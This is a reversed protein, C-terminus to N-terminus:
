KTLLPSPDGTLACYVRKCEQTKFLEEWMDDNMFEAFITAGGEELDNLATPELSQFAALAAFVKASQEADGGTASFIEMGLDGYIGSELADGLPINKLITQNSNWTNSYTSTNLNTWDIGNAKFAQKQQTQLKPPLEKGTHAKHYYNVLDLPSIKSNGNHSRIINHLEVINPPVKGNSKSLYDIMDTPPTGADVRSAWFEPNMLTNNLDGGGFEKVDDRLKIVKIARNQKAQYGPSLIQEQEKMINPFEGKHNMYYRKSEDEARSEGGNDIWHQQLLTAANAYPSTTGYNEKLIRQKNLEQILLRKAKANLEDSVVTGSSHKATTKAIGINKFANSLLGDTFKKYDNYAEGKFDKQLSEVLPKIAQDNLVADPYNGLDDITINGKNFEIIFEAKSEINNISTPSGSLFLKTLRKTDFGRGQLQKMAEMYVEEVEEEADDRGSTRLEQIKKIAEGNITNLTAQRKANYIESREKQAKAVAAHIEGTEGWRGPHVEEFTTGKKWKKGAPRNENLKERMVEPIPMGGMATIHAPDIQGSLVGKIIAEKFYQNGWAGQFGVINQGDTRNAAATIYSYVNEPTFKKLMLETALQLREDSAIRDSIASWKANLEGDATRIKDFFGTGKLFIPSFEGIGHKAFWDQRLKQRAVIQATPNSLGSVQNIRFSQDGIKIEENSNLLASSIDAKYRDALNGLRLEAIKATYAASKGQILNSLNIDGGAKRVELGKLNSRQEDENIGDMVEKTAETAEGDPDLTESKAYWDEVAQAEQGKEWQKHGAKIVGAALQSFQQVLKGEAESAKSLYKAIETNNKQKQNTNEAESKILWNVNSAYSM